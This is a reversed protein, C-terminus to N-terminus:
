GLSSHLPGSWRRQKVKSGVPTAQGGVNSHVGTTEQVVKEDDGCSTRPGMRSDTETARESLDSRGPIEGADHGISYPSEEVDQKSAAIVRGAQPWTM